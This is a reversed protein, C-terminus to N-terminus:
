MAFKAQYGLLYEATKMHNEIQTSQDLDSTCYKCGIMSSTTDTRAPDDAVVTIHFSVYLRQEVDESDHRELIGFLIDLIKVIAFVKVDRYGHTVLGKMTLAGIRTIDPGAKATATELAPPKPKM